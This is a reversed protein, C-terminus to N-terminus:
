IKNLKAQLSDIENSKSYIEEPSLNLFGRAEDRLQSLESKYANYQEKNQQAIKFIEQWTQDIQAQLSDYEKKLQEIVGDFDAETKGEMRAKAILLATELDVTGAATLKHMLKQENQIDNLQEATKKSQRQAEALQEALIEIKKEASQARKRYRISEAVPVLKVNDNEGQEATTESLGNEDTDVQSM